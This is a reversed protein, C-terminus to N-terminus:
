PMKADNMIPAIVPMVVTVPIGLMMGHYSVAQAHNGLSAAIVGRQKDAESLMIM